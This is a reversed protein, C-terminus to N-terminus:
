LGDLGKAIVAGVLGSFVVTASFAIAPHSKFWDRATWIPGRRGEDPLQEGEEVLVFRPPGVRFATGLNMLVAILVPIFAVGVALVAYYILDFAAHFDFSLFMFLFTGVLVVPALAIFFRERFRISPPAVKEAAEKGEALRFALMGVLGVAFGHSGEARVTLGGPAEGSIAFSRPGDVEVSLNRIESPDSAEATQRLADIGHVVQHSEDQFDFTAKPRPEDSLHPKLEELAAEVASVFEDPTGRWREARWERQYRRPEREPPDVVIM